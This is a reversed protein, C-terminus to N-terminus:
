TTSSGQSSTLSSSEAPVSEQGVQSDHPAFARQRRALAWARLRKPARFAFFHGAYLRHRRARRASDAYTTPM